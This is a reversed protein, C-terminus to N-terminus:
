VFGENLFDEIDAKRKDEESVSGLELVRGKIMPYGRLGVGHMEITRVATEPDAYYLAEFTREEDVGIGALFTKVELKLVDSPQLDLDYLYWVTHRLVRDKHTTLFMGSDDNWSVELDNVFAKIIQTQKRTKTSGIQFLVKSM